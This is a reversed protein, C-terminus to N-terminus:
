TDEIADGYLTEFLHAHFNELPLVDRTSESEYRVLQSGYFQVAKTGLFVMYRNEPQGPIVQVVAGIVSPDAKLKVTDGPVFESSPLPPPEPTLPSPSPDSTPPQTDTCGPHFSAHKRQRVSEILDPEAKIVSLFRQLTDLDRYLDDAVPDSAAHAWKNRIHQMEKTWTRAEASLSRRASVEYWNKELVRLLAALDLGSLSAIGREEVMRLQQFSLAPVVCSKWWGESIEPLVVTLFDRLSDATDRSLLQYM